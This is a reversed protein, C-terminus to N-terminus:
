ASVTDEFLLCLVPDSAEVLEVDRVHFSTNRLSTWETEDHGCNSRLYVFDLFRSTKVRKTM